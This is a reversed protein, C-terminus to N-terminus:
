APAACNVMWPVGFQDTLMGFRTAWFTQQLPMKIIANDSLATFLREAEAIDVAGLSLSFGKLEEDAGGMGDSAQLIKGDISISAHMVKDLWHPPCQAEMPSGRFKFVAEIKGGLRQEYFNLAEECRGNFNLYANLQM